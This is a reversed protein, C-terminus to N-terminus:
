FHDVTNVTQEKLEQSPTLVFTARVLEGEWEDVLYVHMQQNWDKDAPAKPFYFDLIAV